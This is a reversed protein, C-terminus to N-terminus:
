PDIEYVQVFEPVHTVASELQEFMVHLPASAYSTVNGGRFAAFITRPVAM